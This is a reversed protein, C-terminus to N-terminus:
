MVGGIDYMMHSSTFVTGALGRVKMRISGYYGMGTAGVFAQYTNNNGSWIANNWTGTNWVGASQNTFSPSGAVPNLQYQTNVQLKVSPTDSSIFVPRAMSFRKLVGANGMANFACQVDAEVLDGGTGTITV